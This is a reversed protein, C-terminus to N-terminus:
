GSLDTDVRCNTSGEKAEQAILTRMNSNAVQQGMHTSNNKAGHVAHTQLGSGIEATGDRPTVEPNIRSEGFNAQHSINASTPNEIGGTNGRSGSGNSRPNMRYVKTDYFLSNEIM